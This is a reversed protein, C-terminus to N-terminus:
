NIRNRSCFVYGNHGIEPMLLRIKEFVECFIAFTGFMHKSLLLSVESVILTIFLSLLKTKLTLFSSWGFVVSCGINFLTNWLSFAAETKGM